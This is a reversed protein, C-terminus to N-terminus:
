LRGVLFAVKVTTILALATITLSAAALIRELFTNKIKKALFFNLTTLTLSILSPLALGLSGILQDEGQPLGYFLPIQPPLRSQCILSLSLNLAGLGWATQFLPLGTAAPPEKKVVTKNM